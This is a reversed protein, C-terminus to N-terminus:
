RYRPMKGLQALASSPSLGFMEVFTRTFHAQDSFGAGHAADTLREGALVQEIGRVLRLWKKYSRVPMGTAERFWHSFRSGSMGLAAAMAARDPSNEHDLSSHLIQLVADLRANRAPLADLQLRARLTDFSREHPMDEGFSALVIAALGAPAEVIRDSAPMMSVIARAEDTTSDMYLSMMHGPMLQHATNAPIFLAHARITGCDATLQVPAGIGISLQHAWHKHRHNDGAKGRFLGIGPRMAMKGIWAMEVASVTGADPMAAANKKMTSDSIEREKADLLASMEPATMGVAPGAIESASHPDFHM